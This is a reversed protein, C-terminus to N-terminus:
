VGLVKGIWRRSVGEQARERQENLRVDEYSSSVPNQSLAARVICLM